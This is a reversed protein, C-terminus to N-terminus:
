EKRNLYHTLDYLLYEDEYIYYDYDKLDGKRLRHYDFDSLYDEFPIERIRLNKNNQIKPNFMNKFYISTKEGNKTVKNNLDYIQDDIKLVVHFSWGVSENQIDLTKMSVQPSNTPKLLTDMGVDKNFIYLVKMKEIDIGERNLKYGLDYVNTYCAGDDYCYSTIDQENFISDALKSLLSKCNSRDKAWSLTIVLFSIIYLFLAFKKM